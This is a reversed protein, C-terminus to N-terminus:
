PIPHAPPAPNTAITGLLSALHTPSRSQKTNATLRIKRRKPKRTSKASGRNAARPIRSRPTHTAASTAPQAYTSRSPMSVMRTPSSIQSMIRDSSTHPRNATKLNAVGGSLTPLSAHAAKTPARPRIVHPANSCPSLRTLKGHPKVSAAGALGTQTTLGAARTSRRRTDREHSTQRTDPEATTTTQDVLTGPSNQTEAPPSVPTEGPPSSEKKRPRECKPQTTIAQLTRRSGRRARHYTIPRDYRLSHSHALQFNKKRATVAAPRGHSRFDDLMSIRTPQDTDSDQTDSDMDYLDGFFKVGQDIRNAYAARIRSQAAKGRAISPPKVQPPGKTVKGRTTGFPTDPHTDLETEPESGSSSKADSFLGLDM